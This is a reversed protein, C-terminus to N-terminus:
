RRARSVFDPRITTSSFKSRKCSHENEKLLLHEERLVVSAHVLNRAYGKRM